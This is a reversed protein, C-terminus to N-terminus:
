SQTSAVMSVCPSTVTLSVGEETRVSAGFCLISNDSLFRLFQQSCLVDKCFWATDQHGPSHIYVLLFQLDKRAQALAQPAVAVVVDAGTLTCKM